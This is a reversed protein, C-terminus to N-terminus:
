DKYPKDFENYKLKLGRSINEELNLITEQNGETNTYKVILWLGMYIDYATCEIPRIQEFEAVAKEAAKKSLNLRKAVHMYCDEPLKVPIKLLKELSEAAATYMSFLADCNNEFDTISAGNKHAVCLPSGIRIHNGRDLLYPYLNAGARGVDSTIFDLVPYSDSSFPQKGADLLAHNLKQLLGKAQSKLSISVTTYMQTVGAQIVTYGPFNKDLSAKLCGLLDYVPLVVYDKPDGAQVTSVKEDRFLVLAKQDWIRFGTNLIKALEDPQILTLATGTIKARDCLSTFAMSRVPVTRLGKKTPYTMLLGSGNMEEEVAEKGVDESIGYGDMISDLLIPCNELPVLQINRITIRSWEDTEKQVKFYALADELTSFYKACGERLRENKKNSM